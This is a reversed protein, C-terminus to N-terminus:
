KYYLVSSIITITVIMSFIMSYIIPSSRRFFGELAFCLQVALFTSFMPVSIGSVNKTTLIAFLQPLLSFGNAIGAAWIIRSWGIKKAFEERTM